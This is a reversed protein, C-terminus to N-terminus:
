LKLTVHIFFQLIKCLVFLVDDISTVICVSVTAIFKYNKWIKM